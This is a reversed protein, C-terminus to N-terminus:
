VKRDEFLEAQQELGGALPRGVIAIALHMQSAEAAAALHRQLDRRCVSRTDIRNPRYGRIGGRGFGPGLLLFRLRHHLAGDGHRNKLKILVEPAARELVRRPCRLSCKLHKRRTPLWSSPLVMISVNLKPANGVTRSAHSLLHAAGCAATEAAGAPAAGHDSPPYAEGRCDGLFFRMRGRAAMTMAM